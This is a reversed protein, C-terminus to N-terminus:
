TMLIVFGNCGYVYRRGINMSQIYSKDEQVQKFPTRGSINGGTLLAAIHLIVDMMCPCNTVATVSYRLKAM